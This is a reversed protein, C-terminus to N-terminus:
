FAYDTPVALSENLTKTTPTGAFDTGFWFNQWAFSYAASKQDIGTRLLLEGQFNHNGNQFAFGSQLYQGQTM